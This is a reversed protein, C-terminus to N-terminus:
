NPVGLSLRWTAMWCGILRVGTAQAVSYWPVAMLFVSLLGNLRDGWFPIVVKSPKPTVHSQFFQTSFCCCCCCCCCCCRCRCRCCFFVGVLVLVLVLYQIYLSAAYQQRIKVTRWKCVPIVPSEHARGFMVEGNSFHFVVCFGCTCNTHMPAYGKVLFGFKITLTVSIQTVFNEDVSTRINWELGLLFSSAVSYQESGAWM